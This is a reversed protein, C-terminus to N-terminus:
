SSPEPSTSNKSGETRFRDDIKFDKLKIRALENGQELISRTKGSITSGFDQSLDSDIRQYWREYLAPLLNYGNAWHSRELQSLLAFKQKLIDITYNVDQAPETIKCISYFNDFAKKVEEGSLEETESVVADVFENQEEAAPIILTNTFFASDNKSYVTKNLASDRFMQMHELINRTKQEPSLTSRYEDTRLQPSFQHRFDDKEDDRVKHFGLSPDYDETPQSKVLSHRVIMQVGQADVRDTMRALWIGMRSREVVEDEYPRKVLTEERGDIVKTVPMDKTYHTHAAIAYQILKLLNPPIVDKALEGFLYSGIEAHGSFRKPEEYRNIVSNGIDHFTGALVGVLKEVDDIKEIEPDKLAIMSSIFDRYAHGKSHGAPMLEMYPRFEELIKPIVDSPLETIERHAKEKTTNWGQLSEVENRLSEVTFFAKKDGEGEFYTRFTEPTKPFLTKQGEIKEM